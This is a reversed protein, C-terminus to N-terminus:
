ELLKAQKFVEYITDGVIFGYMFQSISALCSSGIFAAFPSSVWHWGFLMVATILIVSTVVGALAGALTQDRDWDHWLSRWYLREKFLYKQWNGITYGSFGGGIAGVIALIILVTGDRDLILIKMGFYIFIWTLIHIPIGVISTYIWAKDLSDIAQKLILWQFYGQIASSTIYALLRLLYIVSLNDIHLLLLVLSVFGQTAVVMAISGFTQMLLWQTPFNPKLQKPM